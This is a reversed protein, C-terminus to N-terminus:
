LRPRDPDRQLYDMLGLPADPTGELNALSLDSRLRSPELMNMTSGEAAQAEGAVRGSLVRNASWHTGQCDFYSCVLAMSCFGRDSSELEGTFSLARSLPLPRRQGFLNWSARILFGRNHGLGQNLM